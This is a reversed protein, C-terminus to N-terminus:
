TSPSRSTEILYRVKGFTGTGLIEMFEFDELKAALLQQEDM